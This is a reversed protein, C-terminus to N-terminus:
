VRFFEKIASSSWCAQPLLECSPESRSGQLQQEPASASPIPLAPAAQVSGPRTLSIGPAPAGTGRGGSGGNATANAVSRPGISM